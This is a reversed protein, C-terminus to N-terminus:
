RLAEDILHRYAEEHRLNGRLLEWARAKMGETPERMAQIAARAADLYDGQMPESSYRFRGGKHRQAKNWESKSAFARDFDDGLETAIARAVREIMESM